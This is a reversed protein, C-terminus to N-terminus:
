IVVATAAPPLWRRRRDAPRRGGPRRLLGAEQRSPRCLLDRGVACAGDHSRPIIVVIFVAIPKSQHPPAVNDVTGRFDYYPSVKHQDNNNTHEVHLTTVPKCSKQNGLNIQNYMYLTNFQSHLKTKESYESTCLHQKVL